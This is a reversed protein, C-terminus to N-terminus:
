ADAAYRSGALITSGPLLAVQAPTSAPQSELYSMVMRYGLTYGTWQPVRDNDGFLIRRIETTDSVGLRRRVRPWIHESEETNLADTWVPVVESMVSLAFADAAGEAIMADLLTEPQQTKMYVLKGGALGRPFLLNRVLHAYEHVVTYALWDQWNDVPWIFVMTAQAGLSFGLVGNMQNVLVHSEGDGPLLFIRSNLDPRSLAKVAKALAQNAVKRAEGAELEELATLLVDVKPDGLQSIASRQGLEVFSPHLMSLLNRVYERMQREIADVAEMEPLDASQRAFHSVVRYAPIVSVAM